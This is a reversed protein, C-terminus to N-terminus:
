EEDRRHEAQQMPVACRLICSFLNQGHFVRGIARRMREALRRATRSHYPQRQHQEGGQHDGQRGHDIADAIADPRRGYHLLLGQSQCHGSDGDDMRLGAGHFVLNHQGAINLREGIRRNVRAGAPVQLSPM